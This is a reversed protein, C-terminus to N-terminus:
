GYLRATGYRAKVARDPAALRSETARLAAVQNQHATGNELMFQAVLSRLNVAEAALTASAATTEEVMAANQQTVQDMQNVAINVESLGISQEKASIAIAEMHRNITEVHVEIIRLADGTESVLRVGGAVEVSSSRILAKIEKAAQASRQALERVEQAVVAFGKGADGARAAEVGANLALLNTQFAIEDIVGIINSIQNSSQEIRSMADVANAVVEGSRKASVNAENAVARAEDARHASNGVNNTIQDLAAATEELSAAQQETRRSLDSAGQSIELSNGDITATAQSIATLTENLQRVSANFDHRLAEFDPAFADALQFALDGAALRKLGAALGSTAVKLRAAADAEAIEQASIRDQEARRRNAEAEEELRKNEIAAQRFVEIAGAMEGIEDLRDRDPVVDATNGNSLRNMYGTIRALPSIVRRLTLIMAGVAGVIAICLAIYAASLSSAVAANTTDLNGNNDAVNQDVDEQIADGAKDYAKKGEGLLLASAGEDNGNDKLAKAQEWIRQYETDADLFKQYIAREKDGAIMPLYVKIDKAIEAKTEAMAALVSQRDDARALLYGEHAVRLDGYDTNLQGLVLVSPVTNDAISRTAESILSLRNVSVLGQVVSITALVGFLSLLTAKITLRM